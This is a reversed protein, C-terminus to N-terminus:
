AMKVGVADLAALCIAEQMTPGHAIFRGDNTEPKWGRVEWMTRDPLPTSIVVFFSLERLRALVELADGPDSMPEWDVSRLEDEDFDESHIDVARAVGLREENDLYVAFEGKDYFVKWKEYDGSVFYKWEMVKEALLIQIRRRKLEADSHSSRPWAKKGPNKREFERACAHCPEAWFGSSDLKGRGFTITVDDISTGCDARRCARKMVTDSM